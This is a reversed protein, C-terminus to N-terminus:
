GPTPSILQGVSRTHMLKKLPFFLRWKKERLVSKFFHVLLGRRAAYSALRFFRYHRTWVKRRLLAARRRSQLLPLLGTEGLRVLDDMRQSLVALYIEQNRIERRVSDDCSQFRFDSRATIGSEHRYLILPEPIYELGGTLASRFGMVLDEICKDYRIPGFREEIRKTFASTAGIILASSVAMEELSLGRSVMPPLRMGSRNGAIDILFVPSHILSAKRGSALYREVVKETRYPLSIDDGAAYVILEGSSLSNIRNIHGILGLNESNRNVVVKHPGDYKASMEEIIRFTGDTSCDDSIVIELPSYTQSFAGEIAERVYKEQNYTILFFTVQVRDDIVASDM